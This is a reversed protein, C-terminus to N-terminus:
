LMADQLYRVRDCVFEFGLIFIMIKFIDLKDLTQGAM